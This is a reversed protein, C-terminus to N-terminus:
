SWDAAPDPLEPRGGEPDPRIRYGLPQTAEDIWRLAMKETNAWVEPSAGPTAADVLLRGVVRLLIRALPAAEPVSWDLSDLARSLRFCEMNLEAADPVLDEVRATGAGASVMEELARRGDGPQVDVAGIADKLVVVEFGAARADLVSQRVCYDTALGSVFLRNVGRERLWAELETGDFASYAEREPETAKDVVHDVLGAELGPHFEAGPTGRVCHVPWTGRPVFSIHDPPHWDRSAAVLPLLEAARNLRPFIRDGGQVPLAGGPCFDVQPDVVLLADHERLGIPM